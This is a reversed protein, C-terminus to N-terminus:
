TNGVTRLLTDARSIELIESAFFFHTSASLYM